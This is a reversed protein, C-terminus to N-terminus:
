GKFSSQSNDAIKLSDDLDSALRLALEYRPLWDIHGVGETPYEHDGGIIGYRTKLRRM